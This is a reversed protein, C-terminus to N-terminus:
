VSHFRDFFEVFKTRLQTEQPDCLRRTVTPFHSVLTRVIRHPNLRYETGGSVTAVELDTSYSGSIFLDNKTYALHYMGNRVRNRFNKVEPCNADQSCDGNAPRFQTYVDCFGFNFDQGATGSSRSNPNM